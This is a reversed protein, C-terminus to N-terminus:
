RRHKRRMGFWIALAGVSALLFASPEPVTSLAVNDVVFTEMTSGLGANSGGFSTFTCSSINQWDLTLLTPGTTNVVVTTGYVQSAGNFGKLGVSMGTLWCSSLDINSLIFDGSSSITAIGGFANCAVNSASVMGNRVGTNAYKNNFLYSNVAVFGSWNVGAYGNTITVENTYGGASTINDFNIVEGRCSSVMLFSFFGVALLRVRDKM